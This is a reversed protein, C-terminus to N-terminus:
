RGDAWVRDVCDRQGPECGDDHGCDSVTIAASVVAAVDNETYALAATEVDALVPVDNAPSVAVTRTVAASSAVGDSIVFTVVRDASTQTGTPDESTSQYTVARLATQWAAVSVSGSLALAGAASDYM